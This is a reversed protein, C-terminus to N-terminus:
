QSFCLDLRQAHLGSFHQQTLRNEQFQLSGEFNATITTEEYGRRRQQSLPQCWHCLLSASCSVHCECTHALTYLGTGTPFSWLVHLIKGSTATTTEKEMSLCSM